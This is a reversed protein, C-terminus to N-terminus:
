GSAWGAQDLPGPGGGVTWGAAGRLARTVFRGASGVAELADHGHALYATLAASFTCGTGHTNGTRVLEHAMRRVGGACAVVDTIVGDEFALHGGTVVVMAVGTDLLARAADEMAAVSDIAGRDFGLLRAAEETNPTVVAARPLLRQRYSAVLSEPALEAGTSARLVPDVVLAGLVGRAAADTVADIAAASALLGTKTAVPPLDAVVTELQSRVLEGDVAQVGYVGRTDQVTLASVVTTGHVGLAAWTRLDAQLGAGGGPDSGAVTLAIPPTM